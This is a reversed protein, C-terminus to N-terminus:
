APGTAYADMAERTFQYQDGRVGRRLRGDAQRADYADELGDLYMSDWMQDHGIRAGSRHKTMLYPAGTMSEMGGAVIIERSGAVLQTTRWAHHSAHGLRVDQQCRRCREVAPLCAAGQDGGPACAGPGPGGILVCGIIVEDVLEPAIVGAREIAAKMADRGPRTAKLSTFDGQFGGM